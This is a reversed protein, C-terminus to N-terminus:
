RWPGFGFMLYDRRAAAQAAAEVEPEYIDDLAFPKSPPAPPLPPAPRGIEAALYALGQELRDERLVLDPVQVQSVGRLIESQAAWSADVRLSTQGAVNGQVFSLFALFAARHAARDYGADPGDEPIPLRYARRLTRRVEWYTDPGPVLIHRLFADHLRIAPHRVVAFSLHAPHRRKWQRLTKQNFGDILADPTEDDLAALWARIRTEAGGKIPLYLLPAEPAALYGPVMPPRRPEFNPTRSLDFRDMRGLAARMEDYNVVKDELAGPNQVKTKEVLETLPAAAGLFAGLGNIVDLDRLDDYGIHFATQGTTQLGRLLTLQFAQLTSLHAEFEAADFVVRASKARRMDGLRWQGTEAAIKRSVYSDVPNRTLVIKACRPDPLCHALIRPDHDHFFRFGALGQTEVRMRDLLAIPDADRAQMSFGLMETKGAHGIFHPNFAEGHCALDAFANLNEELFNSGTRMEAFLVFYDWRAGM